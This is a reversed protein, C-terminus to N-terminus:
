ISICFHQAQDGGPVGVGLDGAQSPTDSPVTRMWRCFMWTLSCTDLRVAATM